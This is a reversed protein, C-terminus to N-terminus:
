QLSSIFPVIKTSFENDFDVSNIFKEYMNQCMVLHNDPESLFKIIKSNEHVNRVSLDVCTVMDEMLESALKGYYYHKKTLLPRGCAASYFPSNGCVIPCGNRRVVLLTNPVSVCYIYDDYDVEKYANYLKKINYLHKYQPNLYKTISINYVEKKGIPSKNKQKITSRYGLKFAIEQLGDCLKKSTLNARLM